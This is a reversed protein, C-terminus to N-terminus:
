QVKFNYTITGCQKDISGKSFIWRKANAIAANVLQSNGTTSGKQTYKAEIVNGNTDVCVELVVTGAQQSNEQVSPASKVGRSGLGGGVSGSGKSIGELNSSNPDGNPDGKNGAKGSDGKGKGLGELGLSEGFEKAAQEQRKKEAEAEAKKRAAEEAAKKKAEEEARKKSEEAAKKAEEEKKRKLALAEPDETKVVEKETSKDPKATEKVPEPDPQPEEPVPEPDPAVEEPEAPAAPGANEDGQGVDPIGLNVLIGEQGPPPDPYFLIPLLALIILIIHFVISTRMGANHNKAERRSLVGEM